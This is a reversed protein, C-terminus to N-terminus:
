IGNTDAHSEGNDAEHQAVKAMLAKFRPPSQITPKTVLEPEPEQTQQVHEVFDENTFMKAILYNLFQKKQEGTLADFDTTDNDEAM